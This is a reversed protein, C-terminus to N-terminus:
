NGNERRRYNALYAKAVQIDRWQTRKTGGSLLLMVNDHELSFYVRYGPGHFIRLEFVGDGVSKYDGLNGLIARDLRMIVIAVLKGTASGKLGAWSGAAAMIM